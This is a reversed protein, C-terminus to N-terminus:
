EEYQHKAIEPVIKYQYHEAIGLGLVTFILLWTVIAALWLAGAGMWVALTSIPKM